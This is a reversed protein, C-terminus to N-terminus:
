RLIDLDVRNRKKLKVKQFKMVRYSPFARKLAKNMM